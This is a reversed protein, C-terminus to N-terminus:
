VALTAKSPRQDQDQREAKQPSERQWAGDRWMESVRCGGGTKKLLAPSSTLSLMINPGAKGCGLLCLM